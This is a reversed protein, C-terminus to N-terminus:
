VYLWYLFRLLSSTKTLATTSLSLLKRLSAVKHEALGLLICIRNSQQSYKMRFLWQSRREKSIWTDLLCVLCWLSAQELQCNVSISRPMLVCLSICWLLNSQDLVLQSPCSLLLLLSRKLSSFFSTTITSSNILMASLTICKLYISSNCSNRKKLKRSRNKLNSRDRNNKSLLLERNSNKKKSKRKKLPGRWTREKKSLNFNRKSFKSNCQYNRM